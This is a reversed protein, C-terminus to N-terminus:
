VNENVGKIGLYKSIEDIAEVASHVILVQNGQALLMEIVESQIKNPKNRGVKLELYLANYGQRACPLCLDPIGPRLGEKKLFIAQYCFRKGKRDRTYPLRAGNIIAFLLRLEIIDDQRQRAWDVIACQEAHEPHLM